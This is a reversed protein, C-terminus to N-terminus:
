GPCGFFGRALSQSGVPVPHLGTVTGKDACCSVHRGLSRTPLGPSRRLQRLGEADRRHTLPRRADYGCLHSQTLHGSPPTVKSLLFLGAATRPPADRSTRVGQTRPTRIWVHSGRQFRPTAKGPVGRMAYESDPVHLSKCSPGKLESACPLHSLRRTLTAAAQLWVGMQLGWAPDSTCLLVHRVPECLTDEERWPHLNGEGDASTQIHGPTHGM